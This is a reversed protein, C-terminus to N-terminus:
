HNFSFDKANLLAWFVDAFVASREAPGASELQTRVNAFEADTARRQMTVAFLADAAERDPKGKLLAALRGEPATIQRQM